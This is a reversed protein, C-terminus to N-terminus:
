QIFAIFWEGATISKKGSETKVAGKLKEFQMVVHTICWKNIPNNNM